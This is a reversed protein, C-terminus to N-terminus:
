NAFVAVEDAGQLDVVEIQLKEGVMAPINVRAGARGTRNDFEPSQYRVGGRADKVVLKFKSGEKAQAHLFGIVKSQAIFEGSPSKATLKVFGNETTSVPISM